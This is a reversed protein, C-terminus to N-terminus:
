SDIVTPRTCPRGRSSAKRGRRALAAGGGDVGVRGSRGSRRVSGNQSAAWVDIADAFPKLPFPLGASNVLGARAVGGTMGSNSSAASHARMRLEGRPLPQPLRVQPLADEVVPSHM